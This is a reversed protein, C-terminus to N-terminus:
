FSYDPNNPTGDQMMRNAKGQGTGCKVTIHNLTLLGTVINNNRNEYLLKM